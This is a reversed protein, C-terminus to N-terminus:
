RLRRITGRPSDLALVVADPATPTGPWDSRRAARIQFDSRGALRQIQFWGSKFLHFGNMLFVSYEVEASPPNLLVLEGHPPIEKLFPEMQRLLLAAREGNDKMMEVKSRVAEGHVLFLLGVLLLLAARRIPLRGRRELLEGLGAGALVAVFPMANYTYLESVHHLLVAPFFAMLAFCGERTWEPAPRRRLGALVGLCFLATGLSIAFLVAPDRHAFAICLRVSSGTLLSGALLLGTNRLLLWGLDWGPSGGGPSPAALGIWGRIGLFLISLALFGGAQLGTRMRGGPSRLTERRRTWFVLLAMPLFALSTEKSLLALAFCLLSAAFRSSSGSRLAAGGAGESGALSQELLWLSAVGWLTGLVQSLTDNGAVAEVNAQSLLMFLSGLAAGAAPLGLRRMRVFVLWSLLAHLTIQALHIPLTDIGFTRQSLILLAAELPRYAYPNHPNPHIFYHGLHEPPADFLFQFDDAYRQIRLGPFYAALALLWLLLLWASFALRRRSRLPDSM